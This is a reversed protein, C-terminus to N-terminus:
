NLNLHVSVCISNLERVKGIDVITQGIYFNSAYQMYTPIPRPPDVPREVPFSPQDVAKIFNQM